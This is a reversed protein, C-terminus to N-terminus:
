SIKKPCCHTHIFFVIVITKIPNKDIWKFSCRYILFFCLIANVFWFHTPYIWEYLSVESIIFITLITALWVSPMIRIYKHVIWEGVFNEKKMRILFGSAFFFLSNGLAGGIFLPRLSDPAYQKLHFWTIFFTACVKLLTIENYYEKKSM